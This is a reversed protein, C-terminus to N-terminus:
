SIPILRSKGYPERGFLGAFEVVVGVMGGSRPEAVLCLVGANLGGRGFALGSSCDVVVVERRM